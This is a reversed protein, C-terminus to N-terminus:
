SYWNHLVILRQFAAPTSHPTYLPLEDTPRHVSQLIVSVDPWSLLSRVLTPTM